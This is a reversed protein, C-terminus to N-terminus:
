YTANVLKNFCRRRAMNWAYGASCKCKWFVYNKYVSSSNGMMGAFDVEGSFVVSSLPSATMEFTNTNDIIGPIGICYPCLPSSVPFTCNSPVCKFLLIDWNYSDSCSCSLGNAM